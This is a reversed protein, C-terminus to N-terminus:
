SWEASARQLVKHLTPVEIRPSDMLPDVPELLAAWINAALSRSASSDSRYHVGIRERNRALRWALWLLPSRMDESYLFSTM